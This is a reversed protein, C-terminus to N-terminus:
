ELVVTPLNAGLSAANMGKYAVRELGLQGSTPHGWCKIASTTLQVCVHFNGVGVSRVRVGPGLDVPPLAAGMEGPVDGLNNNPGLAPQALTGIYSRGWCKVGGSALVACSMFAGVDIATVPGGLDVEPLAAGMEDVHDGRSEVDGYGLKGHQNAGWCKVTGRSSLACIHEMSAALQTPIFDSGLPVVLPGTENALSGWSVIGPAGLQGSEGTGWCLVRNSTTLACTFGSGTVVSKVPTDIVPGETVARPLEINLESTGLGLQGADNLGWCRVQGLAQGIDVIACAHGDGVSVSRVIGPLALKTPSPSNIVVGERRPVTWGVNGWCWAAGDSVSCTTGGSGSMEVISDLPVWPLAAGMEDPDDGRNLQDSIALQGSSNSGWCKARGNSFWVCNHHSMVALGVPEWTCARSCGDGATRNADDCAEVETQVFGDGCAAKQCSTPCADTDVDNGDDCTEEGTWTHGDGCAALLCSALCDDTEIANADDCDEDEQVIGDGCNPPVCEGNACEGECQQQSISLLGADCTHLVTGECFAAGPELEECGEVVPACRGTAADCVRGADCTQQEWTGEACLLFSPDAPATCLRAGRESCQGGPEPATSGEGAAGGAASDTHTGAAGGEEFGGAGAANTGSTGSTGGQAGTSGGTSSGGSDGAECTRSDECSKFEDACGGTVVLGGVALTILGYSSAWHSRLGNRVWQSAEAYTM